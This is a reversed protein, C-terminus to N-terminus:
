GSRAHTERIRHERSTAGIRTAVCWWDPHDASINAAALKAKAENEFLGFCTAGSGSMRALRCGPQSEILELIRAIEPMVAIAPAELDNRLAALKGPRFDTASIQGLDSNRKDKLLDFIAATHVPKGSNILIADMAGANGIVEIREGIGRARLTQSHICMPVDAGLELAIKGFDLRGDLQWFKQAALLTAAADASGGGIGSAVPLNKELEIAITPLRRDVLSQLYSISKVALNGSDAPLSAAFPGTVSFSVAQGSPEEGPKVRVIDGIDAFGALTDIEHYGDERIGTVHLALNIKAPAFCAIERM